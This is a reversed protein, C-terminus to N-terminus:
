LFVVEFPQLLRELVNATLVPPLGIDPDGQLQSAFAHAAHRKRAITMPDLLIKRARPWPILEDEPQAWHWAWIPVQHCPAGVNEAARLTARGTADHDSHGDHDWTVFVVDTPRLYREIFRSLAHEDRAIASDRFGGRIWQLRHLPLDLRRLAEASEQPRIVALREMPWTHSGPHSASGDTVSILQMARGLQALQQMLGGFGLVEDDPHPAVIVARSGVPVLLEASMVPLRALSKSHNWTQLSTGEGVILNVSM